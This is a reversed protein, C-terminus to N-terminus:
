GASQRRAAETRIHALLSALGALLAEGEAAPLLEGSRLIRLSRVHADIAPRGSPLDTELLDIVECLSWAAKGMGALGFLAGTANIHNVERYVTERMEATLPGPAAVTALIADLASDIAGVGPPTLLKLGADADDIAESVLKGGPGTMAKALRSMNPIFRVASM